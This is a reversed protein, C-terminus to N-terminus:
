NLNEKAIDSELKNVFECIASEPFSKNLDESSLQYIRDDEFIDKILLVVKSNDDTYLGFYIPCNENISTSFPLEPFIDKVFGLLNYSNSEISKEYLYPNFFEITDVGLIDYSGPVDQFDYVQRFIPDAFIADKFIDCKRIEDDVKNSLEQFQQHLKEADDQKKTNIRYDDQLIIAQYKHFIETTKNLLDVVKANEPTNKVFLVCLYNETNYKNDTTLASLPIYKGNLKDQLRHSLAYILEESSGAMYKDEINVADKNYYNKIYKKGNKSYVQLDEIRDFLDFKGFLCWNVEYEIKAKAIDKEFSNNFFPPIFAVSAYSVETSNDEGPNNKKNNKTFNIGTAAYNKVYALSQNINQVKM